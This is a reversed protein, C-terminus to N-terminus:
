AIFRHTGGLRVQTFHGTVGGNIATGSDFDYNEIEAYWAAAAQRYLDDDTDALEGQYMSWFLNEGAGDLDADSAHETACVAAAAEAAAELSLDIEANTTDCHLCRYENHIDDYVPPPPPAPPAPPSPPKDCEVCFGLLGSESWCYERGYFSGGCTNDACLQGAPAYTYYPIEEGDTCWLKPLAPPAPPADPPRPPSPPEPSSPPTFPPSPMECVMCPGYGGDVAACYTDGYYDSTVCTNDDILETPCSSEYTATCSTVCPYDYTGGSWCNTYFPFSCPVGRPSTGRTGDTCWSIPPASPPSPPSPPPSPSPPPVPPLSPADPPCSCGYSGCPVANTVYLKGNDGRGNNWQCSYYAGEVTPAGAYAVVLDYNYARNPWPTNDPFVYGDPSCDGNLDHYGDCWYDYAKCVYSQKSVDPGWDSKLQYSPPCLSWQGDAVQPHCDPPPPAPAFGAPFAPPQNCQPIDCLEWRVGPDTTYCWPMPEGDPNRCYNEPLYNFSHSHPSDSAWDQCTLGSVTSDAMGDYDAGNGTYCGVDDLRRAEGEVLLLLFLM